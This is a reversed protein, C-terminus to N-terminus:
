RSAGTLVLGPVPRSVQFWFGDDYAIARNIRPLNLGLQANLDITWLHDGDNSYAILNVVTDGGSPQRVSEYVYLTGSRDRFLWGILGRKMPIPPEGSEYEDDFLEVEREIRRVLQGTQWNYIQIENPYGFAVAVTNEHPAIYINGYGSGFRREQLRAYSSHKEGFERISEGSEVSFVELLCCTRPISYPSYAVVFLDDTLFRVTSVQSKRSVIRVIEVGSSDLVAVGFFFSLVTLRRNPSTALSYIDRYEGPGDADVFRMESSLRFDSREYSRVSKIARDLVVLESDVGVALDSIHGFFYTSDEDSGLTRVVSLQPGDGGADTNGSPSNPKCSSAAMAAIGIVCLTVVIQASRKM